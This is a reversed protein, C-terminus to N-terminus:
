PTPLINFDSFCSVLKTEHCYSGAQCKNDTWQVLVTAKLQNCCPTTTPLVPIEVSVERVFFADVNQGCGDPPKLHFPSSGGLSDLCYNGPLLASSNKIRKVVEMGEQAYQTALNQNKSFQANNLASVVAITIASVVVLGIAMAILVEILTQGRTM